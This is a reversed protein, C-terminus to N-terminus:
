QKLVASVRSVSDNKALSLRIISDQRAKLSHPINADLAIMDLTQMDLKQGQVEFEISGSLVQVFISFPAKHEKMVSDKAMAIRIEKASDNQTMVEINVEGAKFTANKWSIIQM